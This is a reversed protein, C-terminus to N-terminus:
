VHQRIGELSWTYKVVWDRINNYTLMTLWPWYTVITMWGACTKARVSASQWFWDGLGIAPSVLVYVVRWPNVLVYRSVRVSRIVLAFYIDILVFILCFGINGRFTVSPHVVLFCSSVWNNSPYTVPTCESPPTMFPPQIIHLRKNTTYWNSQLLEEFVLFSTTPQPMFVECINWHWLLSCYIIWIVEFKTLWLQM